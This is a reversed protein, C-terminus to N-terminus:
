VNGPAQEIIHGLSGQGSSPSLPRLTGVGVMSEPPGAEGM